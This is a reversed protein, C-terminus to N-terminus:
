TWQSSGNQVNTGIPRLKFYSGRKTTPPGGTAVSQQFQPIFTGAANVRLIGTLKVQIQETANTNAATLTTLSATSSAVQQVATLINSNPATVQALYDIATMTATGGFLIGTTHSVAGAARSIWIFAEMEYTTAALVACSDVTADFISQVTAVDTGVVDASAATWFLGAGNNNAQQVFSTTALQTTYNNLAATPAAPVGTFTPAALPAAGTVDATVLALLTKLQAVTMDVPAAVGATNNGKITNAAMTAAMANTVAGASITTAFSGTGTGTVVGTLTITQDGTNAGSSTGSGSPAGVMAATIGGVTGTFTPGALPARTTDTPHVHDQRAYKLSTGITAIGNILPAVTAVQGVVFATTALQTTNNDVAATPAAPIGTFTPAALPAAGAVDAVTISLLTKAQPVSLSEPSGNGATTRGMLTATPIPIFMNQWKIKFDKNTASPNYGYMYSDAVAISSEPLDQLKTM